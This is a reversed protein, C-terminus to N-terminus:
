GEPGRICGKSYINYNVESDSTKDYVKFGNYRIKDIIRISEIDASLDEFFLCSREV